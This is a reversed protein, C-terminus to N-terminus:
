RRPRRGPRRRGTTRRQRRGPQAAGRPGRAARAPARSRTGSRRRGSRRSRGASPPMSGRLSRVACFAVGPPVVSPPAARREHHTATSRDILPGRGPEPGPHGPGLGGDGSLLARRRPQDAPGPRQDARPDARGPRPRRGRPALRDPRDDSIDTLVFGPLLQDVRINRDVKQGQIKGALVGLAGSRTLLNLEQTQDESEGVGFVTTGGGGYTVATVEGNVAVARGGEDPNATVQVTLTVEGFVFRLVKPSQGFGLIGRQNFNEPAPVELTVDRVMVVLNGESDVDFIPPAAPKTVRLAIANPDNGSKARVDAIAKMLDDYSGNEQITIDDMTPAGEDPPVISM